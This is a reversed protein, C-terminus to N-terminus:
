HTFIKKSDSQEIDISSIGEAVDYQGLEICCKLVCGLTRESQATNQAMDATGTAMKSM